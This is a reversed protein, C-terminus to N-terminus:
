NQPLLGYVSIEGRTGVYVRGNAVLPSTFRLAAGAGDRGANTGSNYLEEEVNAANYAHLVAPSGSRGFNFSTIAWVIGDQNGNASVAPTAGADPYQPEASAHALTLKGEQLAFDRLVDNGAIAYLHGNWFAPAGFLMLKPFQVADLLSADSGEHFAGMHDRDILYLTGGKGGVALLHPHAGPQEPLLVVGGSGLDEDIADLAAQNFPTFSDVVALRNGVPRLKLVSNGFDRGGHAADFKGNGTAFYINGEGDTAPGTDSAWIGGNNADPSTNLVAIQKLTHADYSMVWGHYAGADCSSAWTLYVLGAMLTLAARPNQRRADFLVTGRKNGVGSGRVFAQITVPGGFKEKGDTIALAHLKQVYLDVTGRHEKTRALVYITGSAVDIVPTSTIGVEPAILTCELDGAPVPVTEKGLLSVHWLPSAARAATADFAYVSDHETAAFVVDHVGKGTIDVAPLYLPQALVPGDVAFSALKGFHEVNVNRPNCRQRAKM